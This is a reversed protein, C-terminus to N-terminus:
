SLVAFAPRLRSRDWSASNRTPPKSTSALARLPDRRDGGGEIPMRERVAQAFKRVMQPTIAQQGSSQPMAQARESHAQAQDRTAELGAIRDRLATDGLDAVGSEIADHLRQLRLDTETTRENPEAIHNRRRESREQRRALM